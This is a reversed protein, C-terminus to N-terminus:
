PDRVNESDDKVNRREKEAQLMATVLPEDRPISEHIAKWVDKYLMRDYGHAMANRMSIIERWPIEPYLKQVDRPVRNAAEGITQLGYRVAYDTKEDRAMEDMTMGVVFRKVKAMNDLMDQIYDLYERKPEMFAGHRKGEAAAYKRRSLQAPVVIGDKYLWIVERMVRKGIYYPLGEREVVDVKVGLLKGLSQRLQAKRDLVHSPLFEVLVDLDSRTKEQHRVYSGFLGLSKIGFEQSLEPLNSKLLRVFHALSRRAAPKRPRRLVHKDSRVTSPM